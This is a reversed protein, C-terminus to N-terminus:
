PEFKTNEQLEKYMHVGEICRMNLPTKFESCMQRAYSEDTLTYKMFMHGSGIACIAQSAPIVINECARTADDQMTM